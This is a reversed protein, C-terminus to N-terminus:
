EKSVLFKHTKYNILISRKKFIRKECYEIKRKEYRKIKAYYEIKARDATFHAAFCRVGHIKKSQM